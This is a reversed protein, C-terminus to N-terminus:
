VNHKGRYKFINDPLAALREGEIAIVVTRPLIKSLAALPDLYSELIRPTVIVATTFNGKKRRIEKLTNEFFGPIHFHISGLTHLLTNLHNQGLGARYYFGHEGSKENYANTVLGYPTNTAALEEIVGRAVSVTEDILEEEIARGFPKAAEVNLIVLATNDTTFDFKKVMLNNHRATSPWHIYRQPECGTYERIGIVMLPDDILWRRVSVDGGLPGLPVISETLPRKAPLIVIEQALATRKRETWFGIFDGLELMAQELRFLGRKKGYVCYSRRVRQFPLVFLSYVNKSVSFHPPFYEEVRLYSVTLLKANEIVSSVPIEEGIEFDRGPIELYHTLDAFGFLLALHNIIFTLVLFGLVYWIM